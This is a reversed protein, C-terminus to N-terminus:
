EISIHLKKLDELKRKEEMLHQLGAMDTPELDLNQKDISHAKVKVITEKLAQEQEEKTKLEKSEEYSVFISGGQTRGGSYFSETNKCSKLEGTQYQEYVFNPM